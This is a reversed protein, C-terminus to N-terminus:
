QGQQGGQSARSISGELLEAKACVNGAVYGVPGGGMRSFAAGEVRAEGRSGAGWRAKWAPEGARHLLKKRGPEGARGCREGETRGEM